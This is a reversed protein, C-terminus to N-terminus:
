FNLGRYEHEVAVRRTHASAVYYPAYRELQGLRAILITILSERGKEYKEQNMIFVLGSQTINHLEYGEPHNTNVVLTAVVRDDPELCSNAIEQREERDLFHNTAPMNLIEELSLVKEYKKIVSFYKAHTQM